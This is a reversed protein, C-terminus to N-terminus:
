IIYPYVSVLSCKVGKMYQSQAAICLFIFLVYLINSLFLGQVHVPIIEHISHATLM